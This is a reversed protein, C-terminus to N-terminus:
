GVTQIRPAAECRSEMEQGLGRGRMASYAAHATDPSSGCPCRECGHRSLSSSTAHSTPRRTAVKPGSTCLSHAVAFSAVFCGNADTRKGPRIALEGPEGPDQNVEGGRGPRCAHDRVPPFRQTKHQMVVARWAVQDGHCIDRVKLAVLDCGRLKVTRVWTSSPSSGYETRGDSTPSSSGLHGQAQVSGETRRDQGQEMARSSHRQRRNGHHDGMSNLSGFIRRMSAAGGYSPLRPLRSGPLCESNVSEAVLPRGSQTWMGRCRGGAVEDAQDVSCLSSRRSARGVRISAFGSLGTRASTSPGDLSQLAEDNRGLGAHVLAVGHATVFRQKPLAEMGQLV